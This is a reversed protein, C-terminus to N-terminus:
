QLPRWFWAVHGNGYTMTIFSNHVNQQYLTALV